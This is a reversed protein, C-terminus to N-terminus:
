GPEEDLTNNANNHGTFLSYLTIHDIQGGALM